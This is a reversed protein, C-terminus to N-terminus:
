ANVGSSVFKQGQLVATIATLLERGADAKLVYGYAGNSLAAGVTEADNNQSIFLVKATPVLQVLRNEAEIGNLKPLSIDLLILDPRLKQAKHIADLGDIAEGVVQLEERQEVIGRICQRWGEFDDAVLIRVDSIHPRGAPV